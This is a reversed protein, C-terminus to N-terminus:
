EQIALTCEPVLTLSMGPHPPPPPLPSPLIYFYLFWEARTARRSITGLFSKSRVDINTKKSFIMVENCAKMCIEAKVSNYHSTQGCFLSFGGSVSIGSDILRRVPTSLEGGGFLLLSIFINKVDEADFFFDNSM